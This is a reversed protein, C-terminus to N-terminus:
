VKATPREHETSAQKAHRARLGLFLVSPWFVTNVIDAVTDPKVRGYALYDAFEKSFAAIFVAILPWPTALSRGTLIRVTLLVIMGGHIHLVTDPVPGGGSLWRIIEAYYTSLSM